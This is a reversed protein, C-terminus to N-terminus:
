NTTEKKLNPASQKSCDRFPLIKSSCIAFCCDMFHGSQVKRFNEDVSFIISCLMITCGLPLFFKTLNEANWQNLFFDIYNKIKKWGQILEKFIRPKNVEQFSLRGIDWCSGTSVILIEVIHVAFDAVAATVAVAAAFDFAFAFDVAVAAIGLFGRATTIAANLRVNNQTALLLSESDDLDSLAALFAAAM